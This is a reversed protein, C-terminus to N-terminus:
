KLLMMKKTSSFNGSTLTYMYMGSALRSADFTVSHAGANQVENVLAAVERGLVDYIKLTVLGQKEIAYALKTSPNFPNPYNQALQYSNPNSFQDEVDTVDAGFWRLTQVLPSVRDFGYWFYGSSPSDLGLPDFALFVVKNGATLTRHMGVNYTNGNIGIATVDVVAGAVPEFGDLWNQYSSGLEYTPNILLSDENLAVVKSHLSDGLETGAVGAALSAKLNDGSAAYNIDNHDSAVGLIDYQFDGAQYTSDKWGTITGLYEDGILAYNRTAAGALWEKIVTNNIKAPGATTIEIINTYYDVLDKSLAGYAWRDRPFSIVEAGTSTAGNAGFYYSLPYGSIATKGNNFVLLTPQTQNFINYTIVASESVNDNVDTAAIKYRVETGKQQGPIDGSYVEGAATMAVDSYNVGKDISYKLVASKVGAPGGGPNIDTITASVTRAATSLTTPLNTMGSITPALDGTLEVEAVMDWSYARSWWGIDGAAGTVNRGNAYFKWGNLATSAGAWLGFRDVSGTLDTSTNKVAIGFIEGALIQPEAILNMAIWQYNLSTQVEATSPAGSGADSWIDTVDFPSVTGPVGTQVAHWDTSTVDPNTPFATIDNFGNGTAPYYGWNKEGAAALQAKTWKVKVIKLEVSAWAADTTSYGIQKITLDAPAIYWQMLWDQGFGGFNTNFSGDNIRLTDITGNVGKSLKSTQVAHNRVARKDQQVMITEHGDFYNTVKELTNDPRLIMKQQALVFVQTFLVLFLFMSLKKTM